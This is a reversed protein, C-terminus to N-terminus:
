LLAMIYGVDDISFQYVLIIKSPLNPSCLSVCRICTFTSLSQNLSQCSFHIYLKSEFLISSKIMKYRLFFETANAFAPTLVYHSMISSNKPHSLPTISSMSNVHSLVLDNSKNLHFFFMNWAQHNHCAVM